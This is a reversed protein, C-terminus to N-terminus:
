LFQYSSVVSQSLASLVPLFHFHAWLYLEGTTSLREACIDRDQIIKEIEMTM